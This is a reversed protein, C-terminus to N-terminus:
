DDVVRTSLLRTHQAHACTICSDAVHKGIERRRDFLPAFQEAYKCELEHVEEYFKSETKIVEFQLKKLAKIIVPKIVLKSEKMINQMILLITGEM